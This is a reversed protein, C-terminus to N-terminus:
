ISPVKSLINVHEEESQPLSIYIVLARLNSIKLLIDLGLLCLSGLGLILKFGSQCGHFLEFFPELCLTGVPLSFLISQQLPSFVGFRSKFRHRFLKSPQFALHIGHGRCYKTLVKALAEQIVMKAIERNLMFNKFRQLHGCQEDPNQCASSASPLM